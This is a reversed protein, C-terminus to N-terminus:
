KTAHPARPNPQSQMQIQGQAKALAEARDRAQAKRLSQLEWVAWGLVIGFVLVLEILAFSSTSM